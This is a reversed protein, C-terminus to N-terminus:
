GLFIKGYGCVKGTYVQKNYKSELVDAMTRTFGSLALGVGYDFLLRRKAPYAFLDALQLGPINQTKPKIKIEKSTLVKQFFGPQRFRTGSSHVTRYASKLQLDERGGRSEALIDGEWGKFNLWGCYREMLVLLAVHYPHYPLPGYHKTQTSHKDVVVAFARFKARGVLSLLDRNFEEAKSSDRLIAFPGRRAKMDERHLIVPDDADSGFHKSKLLEFAPRFEKEYYELDFACGFLCLYRKDLYSAAAPRFTHDGSEDVYLRLKRKAPDDM